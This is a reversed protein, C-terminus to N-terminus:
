PKRIGVVAGAKYNFTYSAPNFNNFAYLGNYSGGWGWNMYFSLMSAHCDSWWVFGDCVWAHGDVYQYFPWTGIRKGGRLIVPKLARLENRVVNYNNTGEYDIYTASQQYGFNNKFANAVTSETNASSGGCNYVMGVANGIDRMLRSTENTGYGNPMLNWNYSNPYNHYKMIQAMATAVCGTPANHNYSQSCGQNPTYNNYGDWQDWTTQTLSSIVESTGNCYYPDDPDDPPVSKLIQNSAINADGLTLLLNERSSPHNWLYKTHDDQILNKTRLEEIHNKAEVTWDVIGTPYSKADFPFTSTSSVAFIPLSRNDASLIVFGGNKYNIVYLSANKLGQIEKIEKVEKNIIKLSTDKSNESVDYFSLKNAFSIANEKTVFNIGNDEHINTIENRNNCSTLVAICCILLILFNLKKM